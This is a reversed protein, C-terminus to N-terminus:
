RCELEYGGGTDLGEEGTEDGRPKRVNRTSTECTNIALCPHALRVVVRAMLQYQEHIPYHFRSSRMYSAPGEDECVMPHHAQLRTAAPLRTISPTTKVKM